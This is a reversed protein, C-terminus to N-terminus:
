RCALDNTCQSKPVPIHRNHHHHNHNHYDNTCISSILFDDSLRFQRWQWLIVVKQCGTVVIEDFHSYKRKKHLCCRGWWDSDEDGDDEDESSDRLRDLELDTEYCDHQTCRWSLYVGYEDESFQNLNRRARFTTPPKKPEPLRVHPLKRRVQPTFPVRPAGNRVIEPLNFIYIDNQKFKRPGGKRKMKQVANDVELSYVFSFEVSSLFHRKIINNIFVVYISIANFSLHSRGRLATSHRMILVCISWWVKTCPCM